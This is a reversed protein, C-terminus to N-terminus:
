GRVSQPATPSSVTKLVHQLVSVADKWSMDQNSKLLRIVLLEAM